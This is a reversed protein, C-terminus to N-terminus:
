ICNEAWVNQDLYQIANLRWILTDEDLPKFNNIDVGVDAGNIKYFTRGHIHGYICLKDSFDTENDPDIPEHICIVEKNNKLKVKCDGRNEYVIVNDFKNLEKISKKTIDKKDADQREYNGLIFHLKKFNLLNLYDFSAGFDGLFYVEDNISINKNWNFIMTLDMETIDRFPRKSLELTREQSFHTDSLFWKQTPKNLDKVVQKCLSELTKYRKKGILNLRNELYNNKIANNTWGCYVRPKDYWQGFEINTTFAPHEETREVWFIIASSKHMAEIEWQLQKLLHGEDTKDYNPNTPNLIIGDFGLDTLIDIAENRWDDEYNDRPCPGALFISNKCNDLKNFNHKNNEPIIVGM